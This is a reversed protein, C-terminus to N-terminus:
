KGGHVDDGRLKAEVTHRARNGLGSLTPDSQLLTVRPEIGASRLAHAMALSLECGAVGGGIVAVRSGDGLTPPRESTRGPSPKVM